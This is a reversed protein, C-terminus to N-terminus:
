LHEGQWLQGLHRYSQQQSHLPTVLPHHQRTPMATTAGSWAQEVPLLGSCVPFCALM